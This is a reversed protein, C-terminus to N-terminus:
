FQEAILATLTEEGTLKNNVKVRCQLANTLMKFLRKGRTLMSQCSIKNVDM